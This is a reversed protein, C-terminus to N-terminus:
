FSSSKKFKEIMKGFIETESQSLPKQMNGYAKLGKAMSVHARPMSSVHGANLTGHWPYVAGYHVAYLSNEFQFVLNNGVWQSM